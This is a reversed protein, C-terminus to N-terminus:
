VKSGCLPRKSVNWNNDSAKVERQMYRRKRNRKKDLQIM